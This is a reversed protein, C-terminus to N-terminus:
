PICFGVMINKFTSNQTAREGLLHLPFIFTSIFAMSIELASIRIKQTSSSNASYSFCHPIFLDLLQFFSGLQNIIGM